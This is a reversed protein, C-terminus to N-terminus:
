EEGFVALIRDREEATFRSSLYARDEQTLPTVTFACDTELLRLHIEYAGDSLKQNGTNPKNVDTEWGGSSVVYCLADIKGSNDHRYFIRAEEIEGYRVFTEGLQFYSSTGVGEGNYYGYHNCGLAYFPFGVAFLVIFAAYAKKWIEWRGVANFVDLVMVAFFPKKIHLPIVAMGLVLCFFFACVPGVFATGFTLAAGNRLLAHVGCLVGFSLAFLALGLFLGFFAYQHSLSKWLFFHPRTEELREAERQLAEEYYATPNKHIDVLRRVSLALVALYVVLFVIPVVIKM